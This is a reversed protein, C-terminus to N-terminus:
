HEFCPIVYKSFYPEQISWFMYDVRLFDKAFAHLLPVLNNQSNEVPESGTQGTYNGDQVAIGLPALYKTEHMMALAHNLQGKRKVMLDPAGLGVGIKEGYAYISRLYGKNEWPLWEGPMFNAYQMSVSKSFAKKLALMNAKVSEVYLEPTFDVDYKSSVGIATEQLNIGEIQGDFERGLTDLLFAFRQRVHNNWRRAVWGEPKGDDTRQQIIGGGYEETLLYDPVGVYNTTFTADQLQVFLKKGYSHLYYLDAEIASFDYEGKKPELQKWSYMMQAGEFRRIKLFPHNHLAERDRAFYVFHKISDNKIPCTANLYQKYADIYRNAPNQGFSFISPVSCFILILIFKVTPQM